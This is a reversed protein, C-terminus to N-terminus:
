QGGDQINLLCHHRGSDTSTTYMRSAKYVWKPKPFISRNKCHRLSTILAEPEAAM